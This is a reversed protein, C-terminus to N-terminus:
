QLTKSLLAYYQAEGYLIVHHKRAENGVNYQNPNSIMELFDKEKVVICQKKIKLPISQIAEEMATIDEKKPVVVLLDIDSQLTQKGKVYSGFTLLTSFASPSKVIFDQFFVKMWRYQSLFRRCLSKEAEILLEPDARPNISIIKAPPADKKLLIEKKSLEWIANYILPYSKGLARAIGRITQPEEHNLLHGIIDLQTNTAM